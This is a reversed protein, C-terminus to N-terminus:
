NTSWEMAAYIGDGEALRFGLREYLSVAANSRIVHLRIPKGRAAATEQLRKLLATGIGGDRYEPVLSVDILRIEHPTEQLIIGGVRVGNQLIIGHQALPYQLAYSRQRLDFQMRLFADLEGDGWGWASVEEIRTSRYLEYLFAQDETRADVITVM